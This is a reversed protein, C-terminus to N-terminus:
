ATARSPCRISLSDPEVAADTAIASPKASGDWKVRKKLRMVPSVGDVNAALRAVSAEHRRSIGPKRGAVRFGAAM